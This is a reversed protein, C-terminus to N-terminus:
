QVPYLLRLPLLASPSTSLFEDEDEDKMEDRDELKLLQLELTHKNLRRAESGFTGYMWESFDIGPMYHYLSVRIPVCYQPLSPLRVYM